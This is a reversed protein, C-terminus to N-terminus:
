RELLFVLEHRDGAQDSLPQAESDLSTTCCPSEPGAGQRGGCGGRRSNNVCDRQELGLSVAVVRTGGAPM